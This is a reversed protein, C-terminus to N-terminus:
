QLKSLQLTCSTESLRSCLNHTVGGSTWTCTNGPTSSCMGPSICKGQSSDFYYGPESTSTSKAANTAFAAGAGILIIAVPLLAKRLKKM